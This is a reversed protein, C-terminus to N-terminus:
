PRKFYAVLAETMERDGPGATIIKAAGLQGAERAIRSHSVFLPTAKLYRAGAEGLAQM